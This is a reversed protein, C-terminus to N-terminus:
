ATRGRQQQERRRLRAAEYDPEPADPGLGSADLGALWAAGDGAQKRREILDIARGCAAPFMAAFLFLAALIILVLIAMLATIM